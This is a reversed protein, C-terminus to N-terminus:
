DWFGGGDVKVRQDMKAKSGKSRGGTRQASRKSHYKRHQRANEKTLDSAIKGKMTDAPRAPHLEPNLGDSTPSGSRSPPPSRASAEVPEELVGGVTVESDLKGAVDVDADGPSASVEEQSDDDNDDDDSDEEDEQDGDETKVSDMYQVLYLEACAFVPDRLIVYMKSFKRIATKLDAPLLLLIWDSVKGKPIVIVTM